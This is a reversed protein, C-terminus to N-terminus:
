DLPYRRIWAMRWHGRDLTWLQAFRSGQAAISTAGIASFYETGTVLASDDGVAKIVLSDAVLQLHLHGCIRDRAELIPDIYRGHPLDIRTGAFLKARLRHLDCTNYAHNLANEQAILTQTLWLADEARAHRLPSAACVSAMLASAMLYVVLGLRAQHLVTRTNM